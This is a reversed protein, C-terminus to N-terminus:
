GQLYLLLIPDTDLDMEPHIEGHTEGKIIFM